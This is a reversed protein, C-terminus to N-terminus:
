RWGFPLSANSEAKQAIYGLRGCRFCNFSIRALQWRSVCQSRTDVHIWFNQAKAFSSCWAHLGVVCCCFRRGSVSFGGRRGRWGMLDAMLVKVSYAIKKRHCILIRIREVTCGYGCPCRTDWTWYLSYYSRLQRLTLASQMWHLLIWRCCVVRNNLRLSGLITSVGYTWISVSFEQRM